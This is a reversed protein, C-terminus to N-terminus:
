VADGLIRFDELYRRRVLDRLAPTWDIAGGAAGTANVHQLDPLPIRSKAQVVRWSQALRDFRGIFHPALRGDITMDWAQGRWHQGFGACDEDAIACVTEVFAAFPMERRLGWAAFSPRWSGFCKNRWCSELRAHPDRVVAFIWVGAAVLDALPAYPLLDPRHEEGRPAPRGLSDLFAHKIASNANKCIGVWGIGHGALLVNNPDPM